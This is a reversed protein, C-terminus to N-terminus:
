EALLGLGIGIGVPNLTAILGGGAIETIYDGGLQEWLTNDGAQTHSFFVDYTLGNKRVRVHGLGKNALSDWGNSM